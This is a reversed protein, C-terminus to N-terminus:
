LERIKLRIYSQLVHYGDRAVDKEIQNAVQPWAITEPRPLNKNLANLINKSDDIRVADRHLDNLKRHKIISKPFSSENIYFLLAYSESNRNNFEFEYTKHFPTRSTYENVKDLRSLSIDNQIHTYREQENYNQIYSCSTCLLVVLCLLIYPQYPQNRM